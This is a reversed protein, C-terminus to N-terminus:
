ALLRRMLAFAVFLAMVSGLTNAAAYSAARTYAGDNIMHVTELSFASFTTFGGLLGVAAFLFLNHHVESQSRVVLWAMLIGLCFSGVVNVFFTAYAGPHDTIRAAALSAGYRLMAGIAGGAAVFLFGSM